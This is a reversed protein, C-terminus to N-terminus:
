DKRVPLEIPLNLWALGIDRHMHSTSDGGPADYLVALRGKFSIVSPMGIVRRSWPCNAGDIVIAKNSPDWKEPDRSWYVWIADTYELLGHIPDIECGIHNTFLYWLGTSEEYHVSSNEIQETLPLIPEDLVEWPGDLSHARALGLTREVRIGESTPIECSASFYQLFM